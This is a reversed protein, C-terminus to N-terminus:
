AYRLRVTVERAICKYKRVRKDKKGNNRADM